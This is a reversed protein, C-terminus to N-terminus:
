CTSTGCDRAPHTRLALLQRIEEQNMDLNRCNLISALQQAHGETYLRYNGATRDPKSLLGAREHLPDNRGPRRLTQRPRRNSGDTIVETTPRSGSAVVPHRSGGLRSSCSLSTLNRISAFLRNRYDRAQLPLRLQGKTPLTLGLFSQELEASPTRAPSLACALM